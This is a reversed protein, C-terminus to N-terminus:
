NKNKPKEHSKDSNLPIVVLPASDGIVCYFYPYLKKNFTYGIFSYIHSKGETDYFSVRGEKHDALVRVKKLKRPYLIVAHATDAKCSDGLEIM